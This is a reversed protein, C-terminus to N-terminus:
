ISQVFHFEVPESEYGPTLDLESNLIRLQMGDVQKIQEENLEIGIKYKGSLLVARFTGQSDTIALHKEDRSSHINRNEETIERVLITVNPMPEGAILVRGEIRQLQHQNTLFLQLREYKEKVRYDRININHQDYISDATEYDGMAIYIDALDEALSPVLQTSYRYWYSIADLADEFRNENIYMKVLNRTAEIRGSWDPWEESEVVEWYFQEAKQYDQNELNTGLERVVMGIFMSLELSPNARYDNYLLWYREEVSLIDASPEVIDDTPTSIASSDAFFRATREYNLHSLFHASWFLAEPVRKDKPYRNIM